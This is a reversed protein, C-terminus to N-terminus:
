VGLGKGLICVARQRSHQAFAPSISRIVGLGLRSLPPLIASIVLVAFIALFLIVAAFSTVAQGLICGALFGKDTEPRMSYGGLAYKTILVTSEIHRPNVRDLHHSM